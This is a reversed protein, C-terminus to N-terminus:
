DNRERRLTILRKGCCPCYNWMNSNNEIIEFDCDVCMVSQNSILKPM